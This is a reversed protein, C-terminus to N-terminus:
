VIASVARQFQPATLGDRRNQIYRETAAEPTLHEISNFGCEQLLQTIEEPTFYSVFEVGRREAARADAGNEAYFGPVVYTLVIESGPALHAAWNLTERIAGSTLYQTVGLWSV